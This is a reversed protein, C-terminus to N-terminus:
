LNQDAVLQRVLQKMRDYSLPKSCLASVGTNQIAALRSHDQESTIMMVPLTPQDSHQRIQEVLEQGNINPMHYDSIVLDFQQAQLQQLAQAGDEAESIRDIGIATLMQRISRRALRSDDVLLVRIDELLGDDMEGLQSDGLYHMTSHLAQILEARSFPKPLLAIAGAQRIPELYRYHTESSVLMFTIDALGPDNRMQTVLETGTMDPLHMASMVIDPQVRQMRALAPAASDFSEVAQIGVQSLTEVIIHRQVRSPEIVLVLLDGLKMM